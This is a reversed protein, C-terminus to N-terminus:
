KKYLYSGYPDVVSLLTSLGTLLNFRAGKAPAAWGAPKFVDGTVRDVFAHVSRQETHVAVIKFYKRGVEVETTPRKDPAMFNYAEQLKSQVAKAYTSTLVQVNM